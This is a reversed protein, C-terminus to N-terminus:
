GTASQKTTTVIVSIPTTSSGGSIIVIVKVFRSSETTSFKDFKFEVVLAIYLYKCM